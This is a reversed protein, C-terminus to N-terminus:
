SQSEFFSQASANPHREQSSRMAAAIHNATTNKAFGLDVSKGIQAALQEALMSRWIDAATGHGFVGSADKPLMNEVLNQLILQELGKYAKTRADVPNVVSASRVNMASIRSVLDAQAGDLEAPARVSGMTRAFSSEAAVDSPALRALKETTALSKAPDAANAVDLIIDTVPSISM